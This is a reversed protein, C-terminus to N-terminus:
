RKCKRLISGEMKGRRLLPKETYCVAKAIRSSVSYVMSAKFECLDGKRQRQLAPTLPMPWWWGDWKISKSGGIVYWECM